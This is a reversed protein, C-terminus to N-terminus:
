SVIEKVNVIKIELECSPPHYFLGQTRPIDTELRPLLVGKPYDEVYWAKHVKLYSTLDVPPIDFGARPLKEAMFLLLRKRRGDEPSEYRSHPPEILRALWYSSAARSESTKTGDKIQAYLTRGQIMGWSTALHFVVKDTM